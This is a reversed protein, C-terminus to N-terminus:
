IREIIYKFVETSRKKFILDSIDFYSEELNIEVIKAGNQKSIYPLDSAPRVFGSTGIIIFLDAKKSEQEARRFEEEPLLEGFFVIEPRKRGSCECKVFNLIYRILNKRGQILKIEEVFKMLKDETMIERKKCKKCVWKYLNGHLEIINKSGAKQHLNDINQTIISKLKGKKELEFLAIHSINPKANLIPYTFDYIFDIVKKPSIFFQSIIGPLTGYIQPKYKEWLGKDGRFQPIGSEVSIGAGTFAVIYESNKILNLFEELQNM